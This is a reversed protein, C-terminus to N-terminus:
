AHDAMGQRMLPEVPQFPFARIQAEQGVRGVEVRAWRGEDPSAPTLVGKHFHLPTDGQAM